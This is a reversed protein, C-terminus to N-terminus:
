LWRDTKTYTQYITATSSICILIFCVVMHSLDAYSLVLLYSYITTGWLTLVILWGFM